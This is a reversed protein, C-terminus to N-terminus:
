VLLCCDVLLLSLGTGLHSHRLLALCRFCCHRPMLLVRARPLVLTPHRLVLAGGEHGLGSSILGGHLVDVTGLHLLLRVLGVHLDPRGESVWVHVVEHGVAIEDILPFWEVVKVRVRVM